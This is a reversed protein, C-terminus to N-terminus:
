QQGGNKRKLQKVREELVMRNWKLENIVGSYDADVGKELVELQIVALVIDTVVNKITKIDEFVMM